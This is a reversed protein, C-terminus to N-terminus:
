AAEARGVIEGGRYEVRYRPRALYPRMLEPYPGCREPDFPVLGRCYETMFARAAEELDTTGWRARAEARAFAELTPYAEFEERGLWELWFHRLLTHRASKVDVHFYAVERWRLIRYFKPVALAELRVRLPGASRLVRDPTALAAPALRRRV